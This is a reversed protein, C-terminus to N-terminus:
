AVTFINNDNNRYKCRGLRHFWNFILSLQFFVAHIAIGCRVYGSPVVYGCCNVTQCLTIFYNGCLMVAQLYLVVVVEV